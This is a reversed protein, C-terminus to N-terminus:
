KSVQMTLEPMSSVYTPTIYLVNSYEFPPSRLGCVDCVFYKELMLSFLIYSSYSVAFPLNSDVIASSYIWCFFVEKCTSLWSIAMYDISGTSYICVAQMYGRCCYSAFRSFIHRFRPWNIEAKLFFVRTLLAHKGRLWSRHEIQVVVVPNIALLFAGLLM